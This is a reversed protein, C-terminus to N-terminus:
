TLPSSASAALEMRRTDDGLFHQCLIADRQAVDLGPTAFDQRAWLDVRPRYKEAWRRDDEARSHALETLAGLTITVVVVALWFWLFIKVHLRRM